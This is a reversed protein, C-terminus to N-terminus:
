GPFFSPPKHPGDPLPDSLFCPRHACYQTGAPLTPLVYHPATSWALHSAASHKAAHDHSADSDDYQVAGDDAHHHQVGQDHQLTHALGESLLARGQLAFSQLPLCILLLLCFFKRM